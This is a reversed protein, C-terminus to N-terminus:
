HRGTPSTTKNFRNFEPDDCHGNQSPVISLDKLALGASLKDAVWRPKKGRGSWVEEPADPNAFKPLVRPYPRRKQASTPTRLLSGLRRELERKEAEIKTALVECTQQHLDWLEDVSMKKLNLPQGM